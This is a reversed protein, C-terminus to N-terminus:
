FWHKFKRFTITAVESNTTLRPPGAVPTPLRAVVRRTNDCTFIFIRNYGGEKKECSAISVAGPCLDIVRKRLADFDFGIYRSDRELKDHRLWRGSTYSYPDLGADTYACM